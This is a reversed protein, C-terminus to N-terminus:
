EKLLGLPQQLLHEEVMRSPSKKNVVKAILKVWRRKPQARAGM